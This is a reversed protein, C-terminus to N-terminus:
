NYGLTLANDIPKARRSPLFHAAFALEPIQPSCCFGILDSWTLLLLWNAHLLLWYTLLLLWYGHLM